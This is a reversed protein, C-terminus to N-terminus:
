SGIKGTTDQVHLQGETKRRLLGVNRSFMACFVSFCYFMEKVFFTVFLVTSRQFFRVFIASEDKKGPGTLALGNAKTEHQRRSWKMSPIM